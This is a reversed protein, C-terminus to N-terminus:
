AALELLRPVIHVECEETSATRERVAAYHQLAMLQELYVMKITEKCLGVVVFIWLSRKTRPAHLLIDEIEGQLTLRQQNELGRKITFHWDADPLDFRVDVRTGSALPSERKFPVVDLENAFRLALMDRIVNEGGVAPGCDDLINQVWTCQRERAHCRRRKWVILAAIFLMFQVGLVVLGLIEWGLGKAVVM